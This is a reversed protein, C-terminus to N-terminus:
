KKDTMLVYISDVVKEGLLKTDVKHGGRLVIHLWTGDQVDEVSHHLHESVVTAYEILLADPLVKDQNILDYVFHYVVSM